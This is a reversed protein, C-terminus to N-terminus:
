LKAGEVFLYDVYADTLGLAAQMAKLTPWDRQLDSAYEWEVQAQPSAAAVAANVTDLLGAGLLALRAQRMTISKPVGNIVPVAPTPQVDATLDVTDHYADFEAKDAFVYFHTQIGGFVRPPHTPNTKFEEWGLVPSTSIVHYGPQAVAPTLENGEADYTGPTYVIGIEDISIM